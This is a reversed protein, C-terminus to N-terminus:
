IYNQYVGIEDCLGELTEQLELAQRPAYDPLCAYRKIERASQVAQQLRDPM